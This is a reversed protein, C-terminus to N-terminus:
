EQNAALKRNGSAGNNELSKRQHVEFLFESDESAIADM